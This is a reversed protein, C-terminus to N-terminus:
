LISVILQNCSKAYWLCCPLPTTSFFYGSVLPAPCPPHFLQIKFKQNQIKRSSQAGPKENIRGGLVGLFPLQVNPECARLTAFQLKAPHSGFTFRVKLGSRRAVSCYGRTFGCAFGQSFASFTDLGRLSAPHCLLKAWTYLSTSGYSCTIMM